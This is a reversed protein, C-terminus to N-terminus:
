RSDTEREWSMFATDVQSCVAPQMPTALSSFSKKPALPPNAISKSSITDTVTRGRVGFQACKGSTARPQSLSQTPSSVSRPNLETSFQRPPKMARIPSIIVPAALNTDLRIPNPTHASSDISSTVTPIRQKPLDRALADFSRDLPVKAPSQAPLCCEKPLDEGAGFLIAQADQHIRLVSGKEPESPRCALTKTWWGTTPDGVWSGNVPPRTTMSYSSESHVFKNQIQSAYDDIPLEIVGEEVERCDGTEVRGRESVTIISSREPSSGISENTATDEQQCELLPWKTSTPEIEHTPMCMTLETRGVQDHDLLPLSNRKSSIRPPIPAAMQMSAKHNLPSDIAVDAISSIAHFDKAYPNNSSFRRTEMMQLLKEDHPASPEIHLIAVRSCATRRNEVLVNADHKPPSAESV